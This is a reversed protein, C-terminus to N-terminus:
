QVIVEHKPGTEPRIIAALPDFASKLLPRLIDLTTPPARLTLLRGPEGDARRVAERLLLHACRLPSQASDMSPAAGWPRVFELTGFKGMPGLIIRAAEVGFAGLLLGRLREPEHHRGILDIVVLGALGSVRLRRVVEMVARENCAKAFTKATAVGDGGGADVDCAILARTREISLYGGGLLPASPAFAAAEAEDLQECNETLAIDADGFLTQAQRILRDKLTLTHDLRRPAGTDVAILRARARKDQRAEAIVEVEVAAGEPLKAKIDQPADLVAESGDALAIFMMGGAKSKLRAVSRVGLLALSPDSDLGEAYLHPQGAMHVAGRALGFRSEYLITIM